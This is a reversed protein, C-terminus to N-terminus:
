VNYSPELVPGPTEWVPKVEYSRWDVTKSSRRTPACPSLSRTTVTGIAPKGQAFARAAEVMQKRFEVVRHRQVSAIRRGIRLRAMTLWMAIDQNPFGTIGTFNGAKMAQRDQWLNNDLTRLPRYAADLDVGIVSACSSAGRSRIPRTTRIAGRSSTFLRARHRRAACQHQRRKYKNNAHILATAPAVFLRRDCMTPPAANTIPRRIAAYRFGYGAREVQLRPAKDTSPRLWTKDTAEASGRAGPVM